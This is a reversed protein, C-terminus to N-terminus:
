FPMEESFGHQELVKNADTWRKRLSELKEHLDALERSARAILPGEKSREHEEVRLQLESQVANKLQSIAEHITEDLCVEAVMGVTVNQFSGFTRTEKYEIVTIKKM